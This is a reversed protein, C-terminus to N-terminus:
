LVWSLGCQGNLGLDRFIGSCPGLTWCCGAVVHDWFVGSGCGTTSEDEKELKPSRQEGFLYPDFVPPEKAVSM